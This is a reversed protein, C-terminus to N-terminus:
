PFLDFLAHVYMIVCVCVGWVFVCVCVYVSKRLCVVCLRLRRDKQRKNASSTVAEIKTEAKPKEDKTLAAERQSM